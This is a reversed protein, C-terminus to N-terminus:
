AVTDTPYTYRIQRIGLQSWNFLPVAAVGQQEFSSDVGVSAANQSAIERAIYFLGLQQGRTRSISFTRHPLYPHEMTLGALGNWTKFEQCITLDKFYSCLATIAFEAVAHQAEVFEVSNDYDARFIEYLHPCKRKGIQTCEKRWQHYDLIHQGVM